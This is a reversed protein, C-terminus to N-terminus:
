PGTGWCVALAFPLGQHRDDWFVGLSPVLVAPIPIGGCVSTLFHPQLTVDMGLSSKLNRRADPGPQGDPVRDSLAATISSATFSMVQTLQQLRSRLASQTGVARVLASRHKGVYANIGQSFPLSSPQSRGVRHLVASHHRTPCGPSPHRGLAGKLPSASLSQCWLTSSGVKPLLPSTEPVVYMTLSGLSTGQLPHLAADAEPSSLPMVLTPFEVGIGM